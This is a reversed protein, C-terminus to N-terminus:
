AEPEWTDWLIEGNRKICTGYEHIVGQEGRYCEVRTEKPAPKARVVFAASPPSYNDFDRWVGGVLSSVYREYGHPWDMLAEQVPKPLLGFPTELATLDYERGNHTIIHAPQDQWEAILDAEPERVGYRVGDHKWSVTGAFDPHRAVFDGYLGCVMPGVKRGDRTRYYKGAEIQLAPQDPTARSILRYEDTSEDVFLGWDGNQVNRNALRTDLYSAYWHFGSMLNEYRDGPGVQLEALTGTSGVPPRTDQTM